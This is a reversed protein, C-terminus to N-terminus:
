VGEDNHPLPRLKKIRSIHAGSSITVPLSDGHDNHGTLPPRGRKCRDGLSRKVFYSFLSGLAVVMYILLEFQISGADLQKKDKANKPADCVAQQFWRRELADVTADEILKELAWEVARHVCWVDQNSIWGSLEPRLRQGLIQLGCTSEQRLLSVWDSTYLIGADCSGQEESLISEVLNNKSMSTWQGGTGWTLNLHLDPYLRNLSLLHTHLLANVDVCAAIGQSILDQVSSIQQVPVLTASLRAALEATFVATLIILVLGWAFLLICGSNNRPKHGIGGPIVHAFTKWISDGLKQLHLGVSSVRVSWRMTKAPGEETKMQDPEDEAMEVNDTLVMIISTVVGISFVALWLDPSFTSFVWSVAREEVLQPARGVLLFSNDVHGQLLHQHERRDPVHSWWSLVLDSRNAARHSTEIWSETDHIIPVLTYTFGLIDAIHQLMDIDFGSWQANGTEDPDFIGYPPWELEAVTLHKSKLFDRVSGKPNVGECVDARGVSLLSQLLAAQLLVTQAQVPQM